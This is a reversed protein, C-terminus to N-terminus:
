TKVTGDPIRVDGLALMRAGRTPGAAGMPGVLIPTPDIWSEAGGDKWIEFHLHAFASAREDGPDSGNGVIGIAQGAKVLMPQGDAAKGRHKGIPFFVRSLHQYYTAYPKGHDIVIQLGRPSPQVTWIKGDRAALVPIGRPMFFLGGPSREFTGAKFQPLDSKNKARYDIDAGNHSRRGGDRKAQGPGDSIVPQYKNWVPLPWCWGDVTSASGVARDEPTAERLGSGAVMAAALVGGGLIVPDM